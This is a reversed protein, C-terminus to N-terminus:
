ALPWLQRAEEVMIKPFEEPFFLKAGEVYRVGQSRPLTEDLWRAWQRAFIPDGTGWVIRTLIQSSKLRQEIALLPNPEFAVGYDQCQKRRVPSSVLPRLYVEVLEATLFAPDTYTLGGLGEPGQAFGPESFHRDFMNILLGQRAAELAPKLPEPPSNTHVDGNTILMSRVREAHRVALLQAVTTGSDNSVLDARDIDLADLVAVIMECQRIPSLDTGPPVETYGLGMFDAAICRRIDSLQAMLDRWHYGNLPWGHLFIAAPGRGREVYAIRGFRTKLYRRGAHFEQVSQSAPVAADAISTLFGAVMAGAGAKLLDRRVM